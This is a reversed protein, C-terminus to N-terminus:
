SDSEAEPEYELPTLPEDDDHLGSLLETIIVTVLGSYYSVSILGKILRVATLPNDDTDEQRRAWRRASSKLGKMLLYQYVFERDKPNSIDSGCCIRLCYEKIARIYAVVDEDEDWRGYFLPSESIRDGRRFRPM